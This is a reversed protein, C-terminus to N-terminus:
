YASTSSYFAALGEIESDSLAAAVSRMRSYIDNRREGTKFARLQAALYQAGQHTLRPSEVPGGSQDGHCANCAPIGRASDGRAVLREIADGPAPLQAPPIARMPFSAFHASVAMMQEDGLAQALASMMPNSRSGDKFDYLQKYIAAASQGALDPYLKPDVSRGDSGHCTACGAALEAGAASPRALADLLGASWAVRTTPQAKADSTPQPAAPSGPAIGLARCISTWADLGAGRGQIVPLLVFGFLVSFAFVALIAVSAWLRWPRDLPHSGDSM